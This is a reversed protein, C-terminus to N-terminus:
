QPPTWKGGGGAGAFGLVGDRWRLSSVDGPAAVETRTWSDTEWVLLQNAPEPTTVTLALYRGDPSFNLEGPGSGYYLDLPRLETQAEPPAGTLDLVGLMAHVEGGTLFAVRSQALAVAKLPRSPGFRIDPSAGYPQVEPPLDTRTDLIIQENVGESLVLRYDHEIRVILQRTATAEVVRWGEPRREVALRETLLAASQGTHEWASQVLFSHRGDAATEPTITFHLMHPNSLSPPVQVGSVLYPELPQRDLRARMFEAAFAAAQEATGTEAPPPPAAGGEEPQPTRTSLVCGTIMFLGALTLLIWRRM